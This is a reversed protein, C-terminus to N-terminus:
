WQKARVAEQCLVRRVITPERRSSLGVLVLLFYIASIRLVGIVMWCHSVHTILHVGGDNAGADCHAVSIYTM